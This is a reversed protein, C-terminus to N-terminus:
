RRRNRISVGFGGAALVGGAKSPTSKLVPSVLEEAGIGDIFAVEGREGHLVVGGGVGFDCIFFGDFDHVREVVDAFRAHVQRLVPADADAGVVRCRM